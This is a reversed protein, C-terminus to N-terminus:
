GPNGMDDAPDREKGEDDVAVRTEGINASDTM